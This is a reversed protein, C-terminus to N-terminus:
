AGAQQEAPTLANVDAIDPNGVVIDVFPTDTRVDESKGVPVVVAATRKTSGVQIMRQAMASGAFGPAAALMLAAALSVLLSRWDLRRGARGFRRPIRDMRRTRPVAAVDLKENKKM